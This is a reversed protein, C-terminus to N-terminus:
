QTKKTNAFKQFHRLNYNIKRVQFMDDILPPSLNNEFKYIEKMLVNINQQHITHEKKIILLESYSSNHDDSVIRLAREHVNNVLSNSRWSCFMWVPPCYSFQSKIISNFLFNKKQADLLDSFRQLAGLKQSAKSCFSKIHNEFNLKNYIQIGLVTETQSAELVEGCFKLLDGESDKGLSMYHCKEPNLIMCNEHFWKSLKLLDQSLNTQSRRPQLWFMTM